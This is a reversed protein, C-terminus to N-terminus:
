PNFLSLCQVSLYIFFFHVLGDPSRNMKYAAMSGAIIIGSGGIITVISTNFFSRLFNMRRCAETYNSLILEKPFAMVSNFMQTETKFSNIIAMFIPFFFILGLISLVPILLKNINKM